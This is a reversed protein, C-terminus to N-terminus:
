FNDPNSKDEGIIVTIDSIASKDKYLVPLINIIKSIRSLTYSENGVYSISSKNTKNGSTVMIVNGGINTLLKAFRSGLGNEETANIITITKAEQYISRDTFIRPINKSEEESLPLQLETESIDSQKVARAFLWLKITDALSLSKKNKSVMLGLLFDPIPKDLQDSTVKADVPVAISKELNSNQEPKGKLTVKSMSQTDPNFSLLESEKENTALVNYQHKSDFTSNRLLTIGKWIFSTIIIGIVFVAFFIALPLNGGTQATKSKM